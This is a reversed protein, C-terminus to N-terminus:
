QGSNYTLHRNHGLYQGLHVSVATFLCALNRSEHLKDDLLHVDPLLCTHLHSSNEPLATNFGSLFERPHSIADGFVSHQYRSKM